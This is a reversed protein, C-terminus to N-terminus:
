SSPPLPRDKPHKFPTKEVEAREALGWWRQALYTMIERTEEGTASAALRECEEARARCYAPNQPSM